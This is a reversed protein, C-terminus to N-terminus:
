GDVIVIPPVGCNLGMVLFASQLKDTPSLLLAEPAVIRGDGLGHVVQRLAVVDGSHSSKMDGRKFSAFGEVLRIERRPGADVVARILHQAAALVAAGPGTYWFRSVEGKRKEVSRGTPNGHVSFAVSLPAEILLNMPDGPQCAMGVLVQALQGFTVEQPADDGLAIGSSRAIASFGVDVYV